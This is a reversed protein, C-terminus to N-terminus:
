AQPMKYAGSDARILSAQGRKGPKRYFLGVDVLGFKPAGELKIVVPLVGLDTLISVSIKDPHEGSDAVWSRGQLVDIVGSADAYQWGICDGDHSSLQIIYTNQEADPASIWERM